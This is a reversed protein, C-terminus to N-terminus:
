GRYRHTQKKKTINVRKNYKTSEVYARCWVINAKRQSVERLRIGELGVRTTAFPLADDKTHSLLQEGDEDQM